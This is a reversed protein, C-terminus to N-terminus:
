WVHISSDDLIWEMRSVHLEIRHLQHCVDTYTWIFKFIYYFTISACVLSTFEANVPIKHCESIKFM